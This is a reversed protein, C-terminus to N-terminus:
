SVSPFIDLVLRKLDELTTCEEHIHKKLAIPKYHGRYTFQIKRGRGWRGLLNTVHDQAYKFAPPPYQEALELYRMLNSRVQQPDDHDERDAFIGPNWLVAEASMVGAAKTYALNDHIDQCSRVNGNSIIPVEVSSAIEHIADLDAPGERRRKDSKRTRGHIAIVSAGANSLVRCLEITDKTNQLLRIKCFIPVSTAKIMSQVIDTLLPWDKKDLLYSGYHGEFARQQPCGLNLDIADCDEPGLLSCAEALVEPDNGCFQVVLPRDQATTQLYKARHTEDQVFLDAQIMETYCCLGGSRHHLPIRAPNCSEIEEKGTSASAFEQAYIERCLLRYALDSQGVMPAVCHRINFPIAEM